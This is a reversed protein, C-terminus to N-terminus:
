LNHMTGLACINLLFLFSVYRLASSTLYHSLQHCVMITGSKYITTKSTTSDSVNTTAGVTTSTSLTTQSMPPLITGSSLEVVPSSGDGVDIKYLRTKHDKITHMSAENAAQMDDKKKKRKRKKRGREPGKKMTTKEKEKTGWIYPKDDTSVKEM